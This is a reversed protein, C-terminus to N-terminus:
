REGDGTDLAGYPQGPKNGHPTESADIGLSAVWSEHCAPRVTVQCGWQDLTPEEGTCRGSVICPPPDIAVMRPLSGRPFRARLTTRGGHVVRPRGMEEGGPMAAAVGRSDRAASGEGAPCPGGGERSRGGDARECAVGREEVAQGLAEAGPVVRGLGLLTDAVPDFSEDPELSTVVVM